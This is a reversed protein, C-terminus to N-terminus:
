LKHNICKLSAQLNGTERLRQHLRQFHRQDPVERHPFREEYLRQAQRANGDALGYVFHMDALEANTFREM